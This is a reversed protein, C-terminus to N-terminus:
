FLSRQVAHARRYHNSLVRGDKKRRTIRHALGLHVLADLPASVDADHCPACLGRKARHRVEAMVEHTNLTDPEALDLLQLITERLQEAKTM